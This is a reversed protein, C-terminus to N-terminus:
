AFEEIEESALIAEAVIYRRNEQEQCLELHQTESPSTIENSLKSQYPDGVNIHAHEIAQPKIDFLLINSDRLM